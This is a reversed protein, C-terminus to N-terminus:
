PLAESERRNGGEPGPTGRSDLSVGPDVVGALAEKWGLCSVGPQDKWFGESLLGAQKQLAKSLCGGPVSVGHGTHVWGGGPVGGEKRAEGM